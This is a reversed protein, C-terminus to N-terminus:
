KEAKKLTGCDADERLWTLMQDAYRRGLIRYGEALFHLHDDRGTCGKSSVVAARPLLSPLKAILANHSWCAGGEEQQLLEGALLPVDTAELQLDALLRHYLAAVKEPWDKRGCDTCGQHLLVGKIVGSQKAMRGLEVLRDYPRGDYADLFGQLWDPSKSYYTAVSDNNFADISVGGIAVMVIGVRISDPLQECLTRGFYDAPTLGTNWRCLPPVAHYWNGLTRGNHSEDQRSGCMVFMREPVQQLDQDEVAANGEMNSQGLCLYIHFNPDPMQTSGGQQASVSVAYTACLVTMVMRLVFSNMAFSIMKYLIIKLVSVITKQYLLIM